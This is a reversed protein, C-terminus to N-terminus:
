CGFLARPLSTHRRGDRIIGSTIRVQPGLIASSRVGQHIPWECARFGIGWIAQASNGGHLCDMYLLGQALGDMFANFSGSSTTTAHIPCQIWSRLQAEVQDLIKQGGYRQHHLHPQPNHMASGSACWWVKHHIYHCNNHLTHKGQCRTPCFQQNPMVGTVNTTSLSNM